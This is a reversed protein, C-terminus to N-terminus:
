AVRIRTDESNFTADYDLFEQLYMEALELTTQLDGRKRRIRFLHFLTMEVAWRLAKNPINTTGTLATLNTPQKEYFLTFDSNQEGNPMLVYAGHTTFHGWDPFGFVKQYEFEGGRGYRLAKAKAFDSPLPYLKHVKEGDAHAMLITEPSSVTLTATAISSYDVFDLGGKTTEILVRGSSDLNAASTVTFTSAGASVAGNLTTKPKTQIPYAREMFSLGGGHHKEHALLCLRQNLWNGFIVLQDDQMAALQSTGSNIAENRAPTIIEQLTLFTYTEM